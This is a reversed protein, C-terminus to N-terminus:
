EHWLGLYNPLAVSFRSVKISDAQQHYQLALTVDIIAPTLPDYSLQFLSVRIDPSTLDQWGNENCGRGDIRAELAHDHWRFGFRENPTQEDLIGNKNLDYAFLVCSNSTEDAHQGIAWAAQFSQNSHTLRDAVPVHQYGARRLQQQIHRRLLQSEEAVILKQDLAVNKGIFRGGVTACASILMAGAGLAILLETLSYGRALM